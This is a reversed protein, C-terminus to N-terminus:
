VIDIDFIKGNKDLKIITNIYINRTSSNTFQAIIRDYYDIDLSSKGIKIFDVSIDNTQNSEDLEAILDKYGAKTFFENANTSDLKTKDSKIIDVIIDGINKVYDSSEYENFVSLSSLKNIDVVDIEDTDHNITAVVSKLEGSENIFSALLLSNCYITNVQTFISNNENSSSETDDTFTNDDVLVETGVNSSLIYSSYVTKKCEDLMSKYDDVTTLMNVQENVVKRIEMNSKEHGISNLELVIILSISIVLVLLTILEVMKHKNTVRKM